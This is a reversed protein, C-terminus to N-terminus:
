PQMVPLSIVLITGGEPNNEIWLRGRHAEIISRCISLGMGMGDSKTSFFPTFLKELVENAIGTGRDIVHIRAQDEVLCSRITLRRQKTPISAVNMAEIANRMLNLLVQEIKVEDGMVELSEDLAEREIRVNVLKAAPEILGIADDIVKVLRCAEVRPESKRVFDHVHRVIRGARQTQAGLKALVTKLEERSFDQSELENLCGATYGTIAALPQNLEHALTSALEGMTILRSTAQLKEQQQRALEEVRKRETIDIFSAMWGTQRGNADILPAEYILADLRSGDKRQLRVEWGERSLRGAIVADHIGQSREMEEPAWYPMPPSACLLESESFGVMRCFAPNVYVVKGEMDRARMGVTLSDEMAKRFAYEWRQAQEAAIRRQIHDRMMRLSFLMAMTLLVVSATLLNQMFNGSGRYADVRLVMGFGPPDFPIAYNITTEVNSLQSKSALVKGDVDLIRVQYKETFWWPVFERLLGNFSHVSILVGLYQKGSFIPSYMEFRAEGAAFYADAYIFKGLKRAVDLNQLFAADEMRNAGLFPTTRAPHTERTAGNEDVWVIQQIDPNNKLLYEARLRFSPQRNRERSLDRALQQMDRASNELHFNISQELWLMDAILTSHQEEGEQQRLLWFLALLLVLLLGISLKLVILYRNSWRLAPLSQVTGSIMKGFPM